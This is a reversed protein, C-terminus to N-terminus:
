EYDRICIGVGFQPVKKGKGQTDDTLAQYRVTLMEGILSDAIKMLETRDELTGRPRVKFEGGDKTKCEYMIANYHKGNITQKEPNVGIIEFEDDFFEKYKQLDKSRAAFKYLGELNRIIVGEFGEKVYKNHYEYVEKESNIIITEVFKLAKPKKISMFREEFTKDTKPIDYIWYELELTEPKYKKVLSVIKQFTWGHKYIEGDRVDGVELKKLLINNMPNKQLTNNYSEGERSTYQITNEDIKEVFCRVGDLKRQVYAPYNIDHKREIFKHALMPLRVQITEAEHITEFYALKKKKTWKSITELEAQQAPTTENAKGINKGEAITKVRVVRKGDLLGSTETITAGDIELELIRIKGKSDKKYLTKKM